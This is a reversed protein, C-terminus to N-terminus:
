ALGITPSRSGGDREIVTTPSGGAGSPYWTGYVIEDRGDPRYSITTPIM